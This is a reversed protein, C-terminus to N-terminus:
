LVSEAGVSLFLSAKQNMEVSGARYARGVPPHLGTSQNKLPGDGLAPQSGRNVTTVASPAGSRPSRSM